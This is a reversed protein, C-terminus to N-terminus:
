EASLITTKYKSNFDTFKQKYEEDLEGRLKKMEALKDRITELDDAVDKKLQQILIKTQLVRDKLEQVQSQLRQFQEVTPMLREQRM